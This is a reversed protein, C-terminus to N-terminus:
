TGHRKHQPTPFSKGRRQHQRCDRGAEGDCRQLGRSNGMGHQRLRDIRTESLPKTSVWSSRARVSRKTKRTVWMSVRRAVGVSSRTRSETRLPVAGGTPLKM